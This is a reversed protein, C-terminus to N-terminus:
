PLMPDNSALDYRRSEPSHAAMVWYYCSKVGPMGCTPHYGEPIVVADGDSVPHVFEFQGSKRSSFHFAAKPRPIDFYVYIEELHQTHQHPPWSTWKGEDGMTIGCILRSATDQQALTMFVDRRFPEKGHEQRIHGMPLSLDFCRTFFTGGGEYIGGGIYIVLTELAEISATMGAPLYFSDLKSLSFRQKGYIIKASGRILVANLELTDHSLIYQKGASLNLRFFWTARCPSNHPNIVEHFGESAPTPYKWQSPEFNNKM